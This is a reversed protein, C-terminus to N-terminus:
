LLISLCSAAMVLAIFGSSHRGDASNDLWKLVWPWAWRGGKQSPFSQLLLMMRQCTNCFKRTMIWALLGFFFHISHFTDEEDHM